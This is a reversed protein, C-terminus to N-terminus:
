TLTKRDTPFDRSAPMTAAVKSIGGSNLASSSLRDCTESQQPACSRTRVPLSTLPWLSVSVVGEPPRIFGNELPPLAPGGPDSPQPPRQLTSM